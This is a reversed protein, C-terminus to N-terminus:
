IGWTDFFFPSPFSGQAISASISESWYFTQKRHTNWFSTQFHNKYPGSKPPKKSNACILRFGVPKICYIQYLFHAWSSPKLSLELLQVHDYPSPIISNDPPLTFTYGRAKDLFQNKKEEIRQHKVAFTKLPPLSQLRRGGKKEKKRGRERWFPM